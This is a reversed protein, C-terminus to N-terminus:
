KLKFSYIANNKLIYVQKKAEDVALSQAQALSANKYLGLYNGSEKEIVFVAERNKDLVYLNATGERTYLDIIQGFKSPANKVSFSDKKGSFYKTVTKKDGVWVAGDVAFSVPESSLKEALYDQPGALSSGLSVYKWIQKAVADLLYLNEQYTDAAILKKWDNSEQAQATENGTDTPAKTIESSSQLYLFDTVSAFNQLGKKESILISPEKGPLTIKYISGTGKDFVFLTAGALKLDTTEIGGKLAALDAVTELKVKYIKNIAALLTDIEELLKVIKPDKANLKAAEKSAEDVLNRAQLPNIDKLNEADKLKNEISTTTETKKQRSVNRAHNFIGVIVSLLLIAALVVVVQAIRQRKKSAAEDLSGPSRPMWPALILFSLRRTYERALRLSKALIQKAPGSKGKLFSLDLSIKPLRRPWKQKVQDALLNPLPEGKKVEKDLDAILLPQVAEIPEQVLLRIGFATGEKQVFEKRISDLCDEFDERSASEVLSTPDINSLFPPDALVVLDGNILSGSAVQVVEIKKAQKDRVLIVGADGIKALYLVSGWLNAAVFDGELGSTKLAEKVVDIAEELAKLNSGTATYFKDKFSAFVNRASALSADETSKKLHILFFVSGRTQRAEEQEPTFQFSTTFFGEESKGRIEGAQAFLTKEM